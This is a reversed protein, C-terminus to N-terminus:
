GISEESEPGLHVLTQQLAQQFLAALSVTQNSREAIGVTIAINSQQMPSVKITQLTQQIQKLRATAEAASNDMGIVFEGGHWRSILMGPLCQKLTTTFIILWRDRVNHGYEATIAALQDIQIVILCFATENLQMKQVLRDYGAAQNHLGTLPDRRLIDQDMRHREIRNLLRAMFEPPVIPKSVFDDAGADFVQRITESNRQSTLIIISLKSWKSNARLLQCLEIGNGDPLNLDLILLDPMVRDLTGLLQSAQSITHVQIGWPQIMKQLLKLILQDDDLVLVRMNKLAIDRDPEISAIQPTPLESFFEHAMSFTTNQICEKLSQIQGTFHPLNVRSAFQCSLLHTITQAIEGADSLALVGLSGILRHVARQAQHLHLETVNTKFRELTQVDALLMLRVQQSNLSPESPASSTPIAWGSNLRYGLGYVTEIMEGADIEELKKRFRRILTRVAEEGPLDDDLSWLYKLLNSQSHIRQDDQLLLVLLSKERVNLLLPKSQFVIQNTSLNLQVGRWEIVQHKIERSRRLLAKIRAELEELRFPKKIFDDAGSNLGSVSSSHNNATMLIVLSKIDQSRLSKCFEIGDIDPLLIDLLILDYSVDALFDLAEVSTSARDVLYGHRNLYQGLEHSLIDDDDVILLKM